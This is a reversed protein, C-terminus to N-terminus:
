NRLPLIEMSISLLDTSPPLPEMSMPHLELCCWAGRTYKWTLTWNTPPEKPRDDTTPEMRILCQIAITEIFTKRLLQVISGCLGGPSAWGVGPLNSTGIVPYKYAVLSFAGMDESM